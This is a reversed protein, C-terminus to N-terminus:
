EPHRSAHDNVALRAYRELEVPEFTRTAYRHPNFRGTAVYGTALGIPVWPQVVALPVAYKKTKLLSELVGRARGSDRRNGPIQPILYATLEADPRRAGYSVLSKALQKPTTFGLDAIFSSRIARPHYRNILDRAFDACNRFLLNFQRRNPGGNLEEVLADDQAATTKVSFADIQRDYVAGVLQTWHGTPPGQSPSNSDPAIERLHGRRYEDRLALVKDPTAFGPVDTAREVAYLYPILPIAAWDLDGVRNYRSIVTGTEGERCRRLLTPTAACVRTLYVGVHGTPNFSGRRGYPEALLLVVDAHARDACLCLFLVAAWRPVRGKMRPHM